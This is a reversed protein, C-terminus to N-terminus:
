VTANVLENPQRDAHCGNRPGYMFILQLFKITEVEFIIFVNFRDQAAWSVKLVSLPCDFNENLFFILDM